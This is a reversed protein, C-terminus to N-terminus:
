VFEEIRMCQDTYDAVQESYFIIHEMIAPKVTIPNTITLIQLMLKGRHTNYRKISKIMFEIQVSTNKSYKLGTVGTCRYNIDWPTLYLTEIKIYQISQKIRQKTRLEHSACGSYCLARYM